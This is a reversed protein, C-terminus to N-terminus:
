TKQLSIECMLGDAIKRTKRVTYDVSDVTIADDATLSGFESTKATIQYDTSLVMDGALVQDPEDFLVKGTIAGATASVAFPNDFFVDLDNALFDALAM